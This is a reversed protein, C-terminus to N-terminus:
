RSRAVEAELDAAASPREARESLLKTAFRQGESVREIEVAISDIAQQMEGLRAEINRFSDRPAPDPRRRIWASVLSVFMVTGCIMGALSIMMVNRDM